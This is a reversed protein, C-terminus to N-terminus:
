RVVVLVDVPSVGKVSAYPVSATMGISHRIGDALYKHSSSSELV